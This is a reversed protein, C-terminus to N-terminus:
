LVIALVVILAVILLLGGGILSLLVVLGRKYVAQDYAASEAELREISQQRQAAEARHLDIQGLLESAGGDALQARQEAAAQGLEVLKEELAQDLEALAKSRSKQEAELQRKTASLDQRAASLEKQAEQLEARQKQLTEELVAIPQRLQEIEAQTKGRQQEWDGIQVAKEAAARQLVEQRAPDEAKNAQMRKADREKELQKLQREEQGLRTRLAQMEGQREKLQQQADEIASRATSARSNGVAERESFSAQAAQVQQDIEARGAEAEQKQRELDLVPQMAGAIAPAQAHRARVSRGLEALAYRELELQHNAERELARIATRRKSRAGMVAFLYSIPSFLGAPADAPM